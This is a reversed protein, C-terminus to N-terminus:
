FHVESPKGSSGIDGMWFHCAMQFVSFFNPPYLGGMFSVACVFIMSVFGLLSALTGRRKVFFAARIM